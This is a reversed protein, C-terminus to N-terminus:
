DLEPKKMKAKERKIKNEEVKEKLAKVLNDESVGDNIFQFNNITHLGSPSVCFLSTRAIEAFFEFFDSHQSYM